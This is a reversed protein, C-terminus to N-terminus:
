PVVLNNAEAQLHYLVHDTAFQLWSVHSCTAELGPTWRSPRGRSSDIRDQISLARPCFCM